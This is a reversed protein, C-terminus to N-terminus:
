CCPFFLLWLLIQLEKNNIDIALTKEWAKIRCFSRRFLLIFFFIIWVFSYQVRELGFKQSKSKADGKSNYYQNNCCLVGTQKSLKASYLWVLFTIMISFAAALKPSSSFSTHKDIMQQFTCDSHILAGCPIPSVSATSCQWNLLPHFFKSPSLLFWRFLTLVTKNIEPHLSSKCLLTPWFFQFCCWDETLEWHFSPLLPDQISSGIWEVTGFIM